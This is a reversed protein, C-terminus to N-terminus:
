LTNIMVQFNLKKRLLISYDSVFSAAGEPAAQGLQPITIFALFGIPTQSEGNLWCPTSRCYAQLEDPFGHCQGPKLLISSV